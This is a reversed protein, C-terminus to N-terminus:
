SGEGNIQIRFRESSNVVGKTEREKKILIDEIEVVVGKGGRKATSFIESMTGREGKARKHSRAWDTGVVTKVVKKGLGKGKQNEAGGLHSRFLYQRHRKRRKRGVM